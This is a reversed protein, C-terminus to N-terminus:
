KGAEFNDIRPSGGANRNFIIGTFQGTNYTTDTIDGSIHQLGSGTDLWLQFTPGDAVVKMTYFTNDSISPISWTKYTDILKTNSFKYLKIYNSGAVIAAYGTAPASASSARIIVGSATAGIKEVDAQTYHNDSGTSTKHIAGNYSYNATGKAVGEIILLGGVIAEYNSSTDNSYDDLISLNQYITIQFLSIGGNNDVITLTAILPETSSYTYSTTLGTSTDDNGFRWKYETISGDSDSSDSADFTLTDGDKIYTFNATPPINIGAANTISVSNLTGEWETLALASVTSGFLLFAITATSLLKRTTRGRRAFNETYYAKRM